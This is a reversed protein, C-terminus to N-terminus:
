QKDGGGQDPGIVVFAGNGERNIRVLTDGKAQAALRYFDAVSQVPQRNISEIIDGKQLGTQAAPSDPDLQTIVVGNVNTPLGLQDRSSPTLNEVTMGRLTGEPASRQSDQASLDPPRERLTARITMPEGERLIDLTAVAGPNMSVILATLQGSNEIVQGNLKRIVDGNMMRAKDAPGGATVGEVLAGTTDPVMFQKALDKDLNNVQVGLYGKHGHKPNDSRGGAATVPKTGRVSRAEVAALVANVKVMKGAVVTVQQGYGVKGALTILLRHDGAEPNEIVFRGQPSALGKFTDDLYVLANASTQV